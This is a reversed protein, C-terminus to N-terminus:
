CCVWLEEERRAVNLYRVIYRSQCEKLLKCESEVEAENSTVKVRKIAVLENSMKELAVFVQGFGSGRLCKMERKGKEWSSSSSTSM